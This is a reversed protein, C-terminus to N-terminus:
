DEGTTANTKKRSNTNMIIRTGIACGLVALGLGTIIIFYSFVGGGSVGTTAELELFFLAAGLFIIQIGVTVSLFGEKSVLCVIGLMGLVIGVLM